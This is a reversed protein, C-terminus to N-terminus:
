LHSSVSWVEADVQVLVASLFVDMWQGPDDHSRPFTKGFKDWWNSHKDIM